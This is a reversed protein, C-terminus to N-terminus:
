NIEKSKGKNHNNQSNNISRTKTPTSNRTKNIKNLDAILAIVM